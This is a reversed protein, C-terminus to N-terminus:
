ASCGAENCQQTYFNYLTSQYWTYGTYATNMSLTLSTSLFGTNATTLAYWTVGSNAKWYVMYYTPNTRGNTANNTNAVWNITMAHCNHNTLTPAAMTNPVTATQIVYATSTPGNGAPSYAYIQFALYTNYPIYPSTTNLLSYSL